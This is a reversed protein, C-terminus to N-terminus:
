ADNNGRVVLASADLMRQVTHQRADGLPAPVGLNQDDVVARLVIGRGDHLAPHPLM